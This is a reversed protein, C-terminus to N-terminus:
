KSGVFVYNVPGLGTITLTYNITLTNGSLAGTGSGSYSNLAVNVPQTPINLTNGSVTGTFTAGNKRELITVASTSSGSSVVVTDPGNSGGSLNGAYTGLFAANPDTKSCSSIFALSCAVVMIVLALSSLKMFSNKMFQTKKTQNNLPLTVFNIIGTRMTPLYAVKNGM